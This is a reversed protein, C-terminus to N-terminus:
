TASGGDSGKRSGRWSGWWNAGKEKPYSPKIGKEQAVAVGGEMSTSVPFTSISNLILTINGKSGSSATAKQYSLSM